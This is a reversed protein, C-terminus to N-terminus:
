IQRLPSTTCVKTIDPVVVAEFKDKGYGGNDYFYDSLYKGKSESRVAGRVRYGQELLKRVVWIAIFGNAGTVLVKGNPPVTPM